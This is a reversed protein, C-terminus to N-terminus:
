RKGHEIEIKSAGTEGAPMPVRVELVGDAYTAKVDEARVSAPVPVTRSFSGYQFEQHNKDKKEERREGRITLHGSEITVEVDTAPDVGPLEARLVYTGKEVYDEVPIYPTESLKRFTATPGSEIWDLIAAFPNTGRRAVETM